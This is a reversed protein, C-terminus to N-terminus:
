GGVKKAFLCKIVLKGTGSIELDNFGQILRFWKWNFNRTRYNGLSSELIQNHNDVFIIEQGNTNLNTFEFTRNNDDLNKIAFRTTVNSPTIELKPFLYFNDDSQNNFTYTTSGNVNITYVEEYGWAWPADCVVDCTIVQAMNGIYTWQPNQLICKFRVEALDPQIIELWKYGNQGFLYQSIARRDYADLPDQTMRGFTLPFTLTPTQQMGYIYPQAKRRIVDIVPEVNTGASSDIVGSGNLDLLKLCYKESAMGDFIFDSGFFTM